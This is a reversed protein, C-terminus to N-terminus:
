NFQELLQSLNNYYADLSNHTNDIVQEDYHYTPSFTTTYHEKIFILTQSM